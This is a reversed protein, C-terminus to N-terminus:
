QMILNDTKLTDTKVMISELTLNNWILTNLTAEMTGQVYYDSLLHKNLCSPTSQISFHIMGLIKPVQMEQNIM